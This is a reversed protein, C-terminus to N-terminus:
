KCAILTTCRVLFTPRVLALLGADKPKRREKAQLIITDDLTWVPGELFCLDETVFKIEM